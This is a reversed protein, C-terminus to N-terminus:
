AGERVYKESQIRYLRAYQGDQRMLRAHTGTEAISGGEIYFIRDADKVNALRHSIMIVTKDSAYNLVSKFIESESIPDLASSPEDLVVVKCDRAYIRAIALKQLEGGSLQVGDESFEKTLQTYIGHPLAMIKDHLGVYKLAAFVTEEDEKGRVAPRMLVNEAITAAFSQFDQFVIGISGRLSDVDYDACDAENFCIKGSTPDYLRAMLKVITSKGAGNRGVFAVKERPKVTLSVNDLVASGGNPYKFAVNEFVIEPVGHIKLKGGQGINPSYRMFAMFNGIYISHEYMQPFVDLLMALNGSLQQASTSLAVFDAIGLAGSFVRLSLVAMTSAYAIHGATGQAARCGFLAGGFKKITGVLGLVSNEYIKLILAPAKEFLRLEKAYDRLYFVRQAYEGARRHPLQKVFSEHRTKASKTNLLFSVSVNTAVVILVTPEVSTILAFHSAVAFLSGILASLTNLVAVARTDAQRLAYSFKDYFGADDYCALDLEHAKNFIEAQIGHSLAQTNLPIAREQMWANFVAHCVNLMSFASIWLLVTRYNVGASIATIIFRILLVNTVAVGSM